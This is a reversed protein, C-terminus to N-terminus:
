SREVEVVTLRKWSEVGWGRLKSAEKEALDRRSHWSLMGYSGDRNEVEVGHSYVRTMSTRKSVSGDAHTRTHVTKSTKKKPEDRDSILKLCAACTVHERVSSVENKRGAKAGRGCFIMTQGSTRSVVPHSPKEAMNGTAPDWYKVTGTTDETTYHVKSM